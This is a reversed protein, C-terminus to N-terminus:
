KEKIISEYIEARKQTTIELNNYKKIDEYLQNGLNVRMDENKLLKTLAKRWGTKSKKEDIMLCNENNRGIIQYPVTNSVIIPMKFAGAEVMKLESKANNFDNDRLPAISIDFLNYGEAYKNVPKTFVRRYPQYEIDSYTIDKYLKLHSLYNKDKIIQYNSTIMNEYKYWVNKEIPMPETKVEPQYTAYKQRISIPLQKIGSLNGQAQNILMVIRQNLKGVEELDKRLPETLWNIRRMKGRLDFGCLVFQYQDQFKSDISNITNGFLKLDDLHSSGTLYGIRTRDSPQKKNQFQRVNFDISNPLIHVNKAYKKIKDALYPTTTTIHDALKINNLIKLHQKNQKFAQYSYHTPNIHWYDDLDMVIKVGHQKLQSVLVLMDEYKTMTTHFHVLDYDKFDNIRDTPFQELFDVKFEPYMEQLKVHPTESRYYNVGAKDKNVVFIKYM